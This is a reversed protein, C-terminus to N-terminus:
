APCVRIRHGDPDLAVFTLGFVDAHPPQEIEIGRAVWDAHMRAVAADDTVAYALEGRNGRTPPPPTVRHTAWLGLMLGGDLAFAVYAPFAQAPERGLLERYFRASAAPDQVYLLILNPSSM